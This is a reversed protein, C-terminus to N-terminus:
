KGVEIELQNEVSGAGVVEAALRALTDKEQQTKVPGRLLVKGNNVIIKTNQANTSLTTNVVKSRIEAAITVDGKSQGQTGATRTTAERDRANVATNDRDAQGDVPSTSNPADNECGALMATSVISTLLSARM